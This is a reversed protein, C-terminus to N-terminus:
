ETNTTGKTFGLSHRIGVQCLQLELLEGLVALSAASFALTSEEPVLHGEAAFLVVTGGM